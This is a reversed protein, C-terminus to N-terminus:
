HKTQVKVGYLVNSHLVLNQCRQLTIYTIFLHYIGTNNQWEIPVMKPRRHQWVDHSRSLERTKTARHGVGVLFIKLSRGQRFYLSELMVMDQM